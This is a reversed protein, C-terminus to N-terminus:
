SKLYGQFKIEENSIWDDYERFMENNRFYNILYFAM